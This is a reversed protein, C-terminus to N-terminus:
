GNPHNPRYDFKRRASCLRAPSWGAGRRDRELEPPNAGERAVHALVFMIGGVVPGVYDMVLLPLSGHM